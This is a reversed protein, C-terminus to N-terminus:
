ERILPVKVTFSKTDEEVLIDMNKLLAYRRRINKLGTTTSFTEKKRILNNKVRIWEGEKCVEVRLPESPLITNHKICNEVLIQLVMPPIEDQLSKLEEDVHVQLSDGYKVKFLYIFSELFEVEDKVAVTYKDNSQLVYRFIDSLQEIYTVAKDVDNYVESILVNLSNFLFHPNLQNQLAHLDSKLKEEKLRANEMKEKQLKDKYRSIILILDILVVYVISISITMVTKRAFPEPSILFYFVNYLVIYYVITASVKYLSVQWFPSRHAFKRNIWKDGWLTGESALIYGFIVLLYTTKQELFGAFFRGEVIYDVFILIGFGIAAIIANRVVFPKISKLKEIM